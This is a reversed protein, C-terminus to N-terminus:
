PQIQMIRRQFMQVTTGLLTFKRSIPYGFTPVGGRANFFEWFRDDAIRFETQEFYRPDASPKAEVGTKEGAGPEGAALVGSPVSSLLMLLTLLVTAIARM